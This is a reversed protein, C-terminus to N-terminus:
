LGPPAPMTWLFVRRAGIDVTREPEWEGMDFYHSVIRTGPRLERRFKPILQLNLSPLLYLTVVTAESLDTEFLDAARFTVRDDMGAVARNVLAEEIRQPDIDIGVARSANFDRVAAIPIRGDGSGLDYVVDGPGVGALELMATVVEPPTSVYIVDPPRLPAQEGLPAASPDSVAPFLAPVLAIAVAGISRRTM